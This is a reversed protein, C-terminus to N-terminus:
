QFRDAIDKFRDRINGMLEGTRGSFGNKKIKKKQERVMDELDGLDYELILLRERTNVSVEDIVENIKEKLEKLSYEIRELSIGTLESRDEGHCKEKLYEDENDITKQTVLFGDTIRDM